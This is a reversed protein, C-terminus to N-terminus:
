GHALIKKTPIKNSRKKFPTCPSVKERFLKGM